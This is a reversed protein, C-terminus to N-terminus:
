LGIEAAFRYQPDQVPRRYVVVARDILEAQLQRALRRGDEHFRGWWFRGPTKPNYAKGFFRQWDDLRVELKALRKDGPYLERFRVPTEDEWLWAGSSSVQVTLTRAPVSVADEEWVFAAPHHQSGIYSGKGVHDGNRVRVVLKPTETEVVFGQGIGVRLHPTVKMDM